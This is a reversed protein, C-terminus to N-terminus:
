HRLLVPLEAWTLVDRTAGGLMWESFRNRGYAGMVLLDARFRTAAELLAAGAEDRRAAIARPVPAVGRRRLYREIDFPPHWELWPYKDREEGRMLLVQTDKLFPLAARVARMAEPSGNWAIAVREIKRDHGGHHPLVICPAAAKMILRPVDWRVEQEPTAHDIVVLDHRAAAQAMADDTEGEAVTWDVHAVGLARAWQVFSPGAKQADALLKRANELVAAMLEPQYAPAVYLPSPCVYLGTLSGSFGAALRAGFQAAASLAQFDRVYVLIDQM